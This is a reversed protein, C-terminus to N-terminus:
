LKKRAKASQIKLQRRYKAITRRAVPLGAKEMEAALQDDTYPQQKNERQILQKLLRKAPDNGHSSVLSKLPILGLPSEVYKDALARSITSEHVGFLLALEEPCFSILAGEGNLYNTQIKALHTGISKILQRRREISRLLWKAATKFNLITEKQEKSLGALHFYETKIRFTPLAEEMSEVVWKGQIKQIQLDPYVTETHPIEFQSAPRTTLKAITHIAQKLDTESCDLRKKIKKFRGHIFDDYTLNVIHFALSDKKGIRELQLLFAEQISRAFIGAPLLTHLSPLISEQLPDLPDSLLGREDLLGIMLEAVERTQQLPFIERIQALLFASLSPLAQKEFLVQPEIPQKSFPQSELELLPNKEIEEQILTGLELQSLQLIELSRQMSQTLILRHEIKSQIKQQLKMKKGM